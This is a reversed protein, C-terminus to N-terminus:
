FSLVLFPLSPLLSPQRRLCQVTLLNPPYSLFVTLIFLHMQSFSILSQRNECLLKLLFFHVLSVSGWLLASIILHDAAPFYLLM